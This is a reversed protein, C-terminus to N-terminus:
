EKIPEKPPTTTVPEPRFYNAMIDAKDKATLPLSPYKLDQNQGYRYPLTYRIILEPRIHQNENRASAFWQSFTASNEVSDINCILFGNNGFRFMDKVMKTVDIKVSRDRKKAQVNKIVQDGGNSLPQNIWSTSSDEWSQLVRRVIFTSNQVDKDATAELQVPNLILEASILQDPKLYKPLLGYDFALYSRCQLHKGKDFWGATGIIPSQDGAREEFLNSVLVSRSNTDAKLTVSMDSYGTLSQSFVPFSSFIFFLIAFTQTSNKM